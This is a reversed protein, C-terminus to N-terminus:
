PLSPVPCGLRASPRRWGLTGGAPGSLQLWHKEAASFANNDYNQNHVSSGTTNHETSGPRRCPDTHHRDVGRPSQLRAPTGTVRSCDDGGKVGLTEFLVTPHPHNDAHQFHRRGGPPQVELKAPPESAESSCAPSDHWPCYPFSEWCFELREKLM